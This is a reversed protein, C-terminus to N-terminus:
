LSWMNPNFEILDEKEERYTDHDLDLFVRPFSVSATNEGDYRGVVRTEVTPSILTFVPNLPNLLKREGLEEHSKDRSSMM